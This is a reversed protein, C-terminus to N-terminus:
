QRWRRCGPPQRFQQIIRLGHHCHVIQGRKGDSLWTRYMSLSSRRSLNLFECYLNRVPKLVVGRELTAAVKQHPESFLRYGLPSHFPLARQKLQTCNVANTIMYSSHALAIPSTFSLLGAADSAQALFMRRTPLM